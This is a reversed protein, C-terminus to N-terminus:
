GQVPNGLPTHVGLVEEQDNRGHRGNDVATLSVVFEEWAARPVMDEKGAGVIM